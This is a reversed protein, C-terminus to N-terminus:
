NFDHKIENELMKQKTEKVLSIIHEKDFNGYFDLYVDDITCYYDISNGNEDYCYIGDYDTCICLKPNSCVFEDDILQEFGLDKTLTEKIKKLIFDSLM